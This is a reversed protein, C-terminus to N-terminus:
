FSLKNVDLFLTTFLIVHTKNTQEKKQKTKGKKLDTFMIFQTKLATPIDLEAKIM